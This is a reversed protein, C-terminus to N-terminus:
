LLSSEEKTSGHSPVPDRYKDWTMRLTGVAENEGQKIVDLLIYPDLGQM